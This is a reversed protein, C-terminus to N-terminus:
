LADASETMRRLNGLNLLRAATIEPGIVYGDAEATCIALCISYLVMLGDVSYIRLIERQSGVM